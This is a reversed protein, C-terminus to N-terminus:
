TTNKSPFINLQYFDSDSIQTVTIMNEDLFSAPITGSLRAVPVTWHESPEITYPYIPKNNEDTEETVTATWIDMWENYSKPNRLKHTLQTEAM